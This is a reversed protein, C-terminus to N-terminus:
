IFTDVLGKLLQPSTTYIFRKGHQTLAGGYSGCVPAVQASRPHIFHAMEQGFLLVVHPAKNVDSIFLAYSM